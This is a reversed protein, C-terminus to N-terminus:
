GAAPGGLAALTLLLSMVALLAMIGVLAGHGVRSRGVAPGSRWLHLAAAGCAIAGVGGAALGLVGWAAPGGFGSLALVAAVSSVVVVGPMVWRDMIPTAEGRRPKTM